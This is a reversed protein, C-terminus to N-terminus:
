RHPRGLELSRETSFLPSGTVEM